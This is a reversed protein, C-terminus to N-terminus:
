ARREEGPAADKGFIERAVFGKALAWERKVRALPWGMEEAVEEVTLGGYFRLEAIRAQAHDLRDLSLLAEHVSLPDWRTEGTASAAEEIDVRMVDGGRKETRRARAYDVLINRIIQASFGFFARRNNFSVDKADILRVYAENVIETPQLTHGPRERRMAAMALKRLEDYVLPMLLDIAQRNGAEVQKLLRTVDRQFANSEGQAAAQKETEEAPM